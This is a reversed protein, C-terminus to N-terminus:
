ELHNICISNKKLKASISKSPLDYESPVININQPKENEEELIPVRIHSDQDM